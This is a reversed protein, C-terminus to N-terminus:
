PCLRLYREHLEMIQERLGPLDGDNSCIDDALRLREDRSVQTTMIARVEDTSLQSRAMVREVQQQEMCDVALIRQVLDGYNGTELLLPVAVITYPAQIEALRRRVEDKILPHLVHELRSKAEPDSFVLHRLRARDLSGDVLFYTDGFQARIMALAPQGVETLQRSIQDTDIVAAGLQAFIEAATSKGCGIGGTLGVVLM